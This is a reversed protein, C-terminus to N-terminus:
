VALCCEGLLTKVWIRGFVGSVRLSIPCNERLQNRWLSQVFGVSQAQGDDGQLSVTFFHLNREKKKVATENIGRQSRAEEWSGGFIWGMQQSSNCFSCSDPMLILNSLINQCRTIAQKSDPRIGGRSGRGGGTHEPKGRAGNEGTWLPLTRTYMLIQATLSCFDIFPM